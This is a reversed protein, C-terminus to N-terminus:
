SFPTLVSETVIPSLLVKRPQYGEGESLGDLLLKVGQYAMDDVLGDIYITPVPLNLYDYWRVTVLVIDIKRGWFRGVMLHSIDTASRFDPCFISDFPLTDQEFVKKLTPMAGEYAGGGIYIISDDVECSNDILAEKYSSLAVRDAHWRQTEDFFAIRKKGAAVLQEVAMHVGMGFNIEVASSYRTLGESYNGLVVHPINLEKFLSMLRPGIEGSVLIGDVRNDRLIPPLDYISEEAGTLKAFLLHYNNEGTGRAIGDILKAYAPNAFDFGVMVFAINRTSGNLSERVLDQINPNIRYNMEKCVQLVKRRTEESVWPKGNLVHSVTAKSVGAKEAVQLMSPRSNNNTTSM